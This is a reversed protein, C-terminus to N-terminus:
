MHYPGCSGAGASCCQVALIGLMSVVSVIGLRSKVMHKVVLSSNPSEMGEVRVIRVCVVWAQMHRVSALQSALQCAIMCGLWETVRARRDRDDWVLQLSPLLHLLLVCLAFCVSFRGFNAPAARWGVSVGGSLV